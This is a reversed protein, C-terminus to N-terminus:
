REGDVMVRFDIGSLQFNGANEGEFRWAPYRGSTRTDIKYDTEINYGVPTDWTVPGEPTNSWGITIEIDGSGKIQPLVQDIYKITNTPIGLTDDFDLGTRELKFSLGTGFITDFDDLTDTSGSWLYTQSKFNTDLLQAWTETIQDWTIGLTNWDDWTLAPPQTLASEVRAVSPLDIFSWTDYRYCWILAKTALGTGSGDSEFYIVCEKTDPLHECKISSTNTTSQFLFDRVKQDAIHTVTHGDHVYITDSSVCFHNQDFECVADRNLLGNDTFKRFAFVENGGIFQMEYASRNTYIIFVDGLELGDIIEGDEATFYNEGALNTTSPVWSDPVQNPESENSWRVTTPLDTGGDNLNMAVMFAKFPRIIKCTLNAPWNPLDIFTPDTPRKIQPDVAGNNYIPSENWIFTQWFDATYGGLQSVDNSVGGSDIEYIATSTAYTYTVVDNQLFIEGWLVGTNISYREVPSSSKQATGNFFRVNEVLNFANDPIDYNPRDSILGINGLNRIPVHPM